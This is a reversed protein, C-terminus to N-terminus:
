HAFGCSKMVEYNLLRQWVLEGFPASAKPGGSSAADLERLEESSFGDIVYSTVCGAATEASQEAAVDPFGAEGYTDRLTDILMTKMAAEFEGAAHASASALMCLASVLALMGRRRFM